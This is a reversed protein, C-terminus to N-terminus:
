WQNIIEVNVFYMNYTISKVCVQIDSYNRIRSCNQKALKLSTTTWADDIAGFSDTYYGRTLSHPYFGGNYYSNNDAEDVIYYYTVQKALSQTGTM